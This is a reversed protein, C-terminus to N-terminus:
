RHWRPFRSASFAAAPTQLHIACGWGLFGGHRFQRVDFDELLVQVGGGQVLLDGFGPDVVFADELAKRARRQLAPCRPAPELAGRAAAFVQQHGQILVAPERHEEAHGSVQAVVAALVVPRLM